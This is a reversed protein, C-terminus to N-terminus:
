EKNADLMAMHTLMADELSDSAKRLNDIRAELVDRQQVLGNIQADITKYQSILTKARDDPPAELYQIVKGIQEGTIAGM